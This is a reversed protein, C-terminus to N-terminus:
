VSITDRTNHCDRTDRCVWTVALLWSLEGGGGRTVVNYNSVSVLALCRTYQWHLVNNIVCLSPATPIHSVPLCDLTMLWIATIIAMPCNSLNRFWMLTYATRKNQVQTIAFHLNHQLYSKISTLLTDQVLQHSVLHHCHHLKDPAAQMYNAGITALVGSEIETDVFTLHFRLHLNFHLPPSQRRVSVSPTFHSLKSM